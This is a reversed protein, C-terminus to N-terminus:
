AQTRNVGPNLNGLNPKLYMNFNTHGPNFYPYTPSNPLNPNSKAFTHLILIDIPLEADAQLSDLRNSLEAITMGLHAIWEEIATGQKRARTLEVEFRALQGKLSSLVEEKSSLPIGNLTFLGPPSM